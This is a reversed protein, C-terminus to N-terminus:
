VLLLHRLAARAGSLSDIAVHLTHIRCTSLRKAHLYVEGGPLPESAVAARAQEISNKLRTIILEANHRVILVGIAMAEPVKV